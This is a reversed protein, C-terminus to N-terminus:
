SQRKSELWKLVDNLNATGIRPFQKELEERSVNAGSRRSELIRMMTETLPNGADVPPKPTDDASGPEEFPLPASDDLAIPPTPAAAPQPAPDKAPEARQATAPPKPESFQADIPTEKKKTQAQKIEPVAVVPQTVAIPDVDDMEDPTYVGLLASPAYLRAWQRTGRYVLMSQPDKDWNNPRPRNKDPKGDNGKYFDFTRWGKVTGSLVKQESAGRPTGTVTITLNEGNGSFKYDLIGEIANMSSLAAAVLKGEYCLKGHVMSTCQAVVFPDMQWRYAQMVIMLCDGEKKQLHDPILTSQALAKALEKAEVLTKPMLALPNFESVTAIEKSETMSRKEM